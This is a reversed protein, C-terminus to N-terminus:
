RAKTLNGFFAVNNVLFIMLLAIAGATIVTKVSPLPLGAM